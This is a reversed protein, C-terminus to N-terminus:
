GQRPVLIEELMDKIDLLTGDIRAIEACLRTRQSSEGEGIYRGGITDNKICLVLEQTLISRKRFAGSIGSVIEQIRVPSKDPSDRLDNKEFLLCGEM